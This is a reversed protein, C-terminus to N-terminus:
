YKRIITELDSIKEKLIYIKDQMKDKDSELEEIEVILEDIISEIDRKANDVRRSLHTNNM